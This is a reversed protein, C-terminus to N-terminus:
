VIRKKHRIILNIKNSSFGIIIIVKLIIKKKQQNLIINKLIKKTDNNIILNRSKISLKINCHKLKKDMKKNKNRM